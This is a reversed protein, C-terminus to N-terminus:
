SVTMSVKVTWGTEKLLAFAVWNGITKADASRETFILKTHRTPSCAPGVQGRLCFTPSYLLQM